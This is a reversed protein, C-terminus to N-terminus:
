TLFTVDHLSELTGRTTFSITSRAAANVVSFSDHSAYEVTRTIEESLGLETKRASLTHRAYRGVLKMFTQM